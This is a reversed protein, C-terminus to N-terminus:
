QRSATTLLEVTWEVRLSSTVHTRQAFLGLLINFSSYILYSCKSRICEDLWDTQAFRPHQRSRASVLSARGHSLKNDHVFPKFTHIRFVAFLCHQLLLVWTCAQQVCTNTVM